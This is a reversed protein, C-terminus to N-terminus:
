VNGRRQNAQITRWVEVVLEETKRKNRYLEYDAVADQYKKQWESHVAAVRASMEREQNTGTTKLFVLAIITKEQNKLGEVLARAKAAPEDTEALYTMAKQLRGESIM